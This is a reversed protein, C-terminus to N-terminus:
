SVCSLVKFYYCKSQIEANSDRNPGPFTWGEHFIESFNNNIETHARFCIMRYRLFLIDLYSQYKPWLAENSNWFDTLRLYMICQNRLYVVRNYMHNCQNGKKLRSCRADLKKFQQQQQWQQEHFARYNTLKDIQGLIQVLFLREFRDEM